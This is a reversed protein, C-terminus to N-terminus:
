RRSSPRTPTPASTSSCAPWCCTSWRRGFTSRRSTRARSCCRACRRCASARRWRSRTTKTPTSFTALAAAADAYEHFKRLIATVFSVAHPSVEDQFHEVLNQLAVILIDSEVEDMMALFAQLLEGVLPALHQHIVDSDVFQGLACAAMIRVPLEPDRMRELLKQVTAAAADAGIDAIQDSFQQLTWCARARMVSSASDLEPFVHTSLIQPLQEAVSSKPAM